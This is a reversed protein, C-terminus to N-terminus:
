CMVVMMEEEEEFGGVGVSKVIGGSYVEEHRGGDGDLQIRELEFKFGLRFVEGKEEEKEGVCDYGCSLEEERVTM